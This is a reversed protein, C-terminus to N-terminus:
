PNVSHHQVYLIFLFINYFYLSHLTASPLLPLHRINITLVESRCQREGHIFPDPLPLPLLCHIQSGLSPVYTSLHAPDVTVGEFLDEPITKICIYM